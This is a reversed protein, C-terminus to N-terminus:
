GVIDYTLDVLFTNLEHLNHMEISRWEVIIKAM